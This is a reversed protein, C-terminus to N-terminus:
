VWMKFLFGRIRLWGHSWITTSKFIALWFVGQSEVSVQGNAM